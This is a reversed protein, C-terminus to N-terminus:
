WRPVSWVTYADKYCIVEFLKEVVEPYFFLVEGEDDLLEPLFVKESVEEGFIEYSDDFTCVSAFEHLAAALEAHEKKAVGQPCFLFSEADTIIENSHPAALEFVKKTLESAREVTVM